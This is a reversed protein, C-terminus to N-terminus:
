LDNSIWDSKKHWESNLIANSRQVACGYFSISFRSHSCTYSHTNCHNHQQQHQSQILTYKQENCPNWNRKNWPNYIFRAYSTCLWLSNSHSHEIWISSVLGSTSRVYKNKMFNLKNVENMKNTSKINNIHKYLSLRIFVRLYHRWRACKMMEMSHKNQQIPIFFFVHHPLKHM